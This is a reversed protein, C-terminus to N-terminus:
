AAKNILKELSLWQSLKLDGKGNIWNYFTGQPIGVLKAVKYPPIGTKQIYDLTQNIQQKM